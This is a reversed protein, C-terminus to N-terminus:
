LRVHFPQLQNKWDNMLAKSVNKKYLTPTLPASTICIYIFLFFLVCMKDCSLHQDASFCKLAMGSLKCTSFRAIFTLLENSTSWLLEYIGYISSSFGKEDNIHILLLLLHCNRTIIIFLLLCNFSSILLYFEMM